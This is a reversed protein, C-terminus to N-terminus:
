RMMYTYIYIYIYTYLLLIFMKKLYKQLATAMAGTGRVRLQLMYIIYIGAESLIHIKSHLKSSRCYLSVNNSDITTM